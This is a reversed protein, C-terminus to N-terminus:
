RGNQGGEVFNESLYLMAQYWIDVTRLDFKTNKVTFLGGEGNPEYRRLLFREVTDIMYDIDEDSIDPNRIKILGLNDIMGWFWKSTRDGYDDDSMVQQEIRCALAVMMELVTCSFRDLEQAIIRHDIRREVGFRYRLDIGDAYRNDDLPAIYHFDCSFLYTLLGEYTRFQEEDGDTIIDCLWRFYSARIGEM